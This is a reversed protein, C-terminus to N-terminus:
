MRIRWITGRMRESTMVPWFLTGFGDTKKKSEVKPRFLLYRKSESQKSLLEAHCAELRERPTWDKGAMNANQKVVRHLQKTQHTKKNLHRRADGM